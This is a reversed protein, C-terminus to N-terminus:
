LMYMVLKKLREPELVSVSNFKILYERYREYQDRYEEVITKFAGLEQGSHLYTKDMAFVLKNYIYAKIAALSMEVFTPTINVDMNTFDKDYEVRCELVWDIHMAQPPDLKICDGNLLIPTPTVLSDAHTQANLVTSGLLGTNRGANHWGYPASHAAGTAVTYPFHIAHVASIPKNDRAHPHIQYVVWTNQISVNAIPPTRLCVANDMTLPIKTLKGGANNCDYVVMGHIVDEIICADLAKSRTNPSFATHLIEYPIEFYARRLLMDLPDQM